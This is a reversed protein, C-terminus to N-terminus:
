YSTCAPVSTTGSVYLGNWYADNLLSQKWQTHGIAHTKAEREHSHENELHQFYADDGQTSSTSCLTCIWQKRSGAERHRTENLSIRSLQTDSSTEKFYNQHFFYDKHAQAKRALEEANAQPPNLDLDCLQLSPVLDSQWSAFDLASEDTDLKSDQSVDEGLGYMHNTREVWRVIRDRNHEIEDDEDLFKAVHSIDFTGVLKGLNEIPDMPWPLSRLSFDHVHQLVHEVLEPSDEPGELGCFPCKAIGM